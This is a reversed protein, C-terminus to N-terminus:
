FKFIIGDGRWYKEFNHQSEKLFLIAICFLIAIRFLFQSKDSKSIIVITNKKGIFKVFRLFTFNKAIIKAIAINELNKRYVM